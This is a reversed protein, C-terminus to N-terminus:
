GGKLQNRLSLLESYLKEDLNLSVKDELSEIKKRLDVKKIEDIIENFISIIEGENRNKSIIKVSANMNILNIIKRYKADFDELKIKKRDFFKESMLYKVLKQKFEMMFDNSLDIESILEIKKRFIDLNNMVLFLISFEKLEEEKFKNKQKYIDKTEQLPNSIKRFKSFNYKKFNLNPTLENIRRM